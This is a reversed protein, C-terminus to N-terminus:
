CIGPNTAAYLLMMRWAMTGNLRWHAWGREEMARVRVRGCKEPFEWVLFRSFASFWQTQQPSFRQLLHRFLSVPRAACRHASFPVSAVFEFLYNPHVCFLSLLSFCTFHLLLTSLLLPVLFHSKFFLLSSILFFTCHAIYLTCNDRPSLDLPSWM